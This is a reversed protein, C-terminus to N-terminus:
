KEPFDRALHGKKHCNFCEVQSMDRTGFGKNQNKSRNNNGSNNGGGSSSNKGGGSGSKLSDVKQQFTNITAKCLQLKM